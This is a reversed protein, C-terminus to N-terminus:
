RLSGPPLEEMARSNDVQIDQTALPEGLEEVETGETITSASKSFYPEGFRNWSVFGITITLFSILALAIWDQRKGSSKKSLMIAQSLQTSSKTKASIPHGYLNALDQAAGADSTTDAAAEPSVSLPSPIQPADTAPAGSEAKLRPGTEPDKATEPNSPGVPTSPAQVSAGRPLPKPPPFLEADGTGEVMVGDQVTTSANNHEPDPMTDFPTPDLTIFTQHIGCQPCCGEM